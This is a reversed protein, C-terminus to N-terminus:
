HYLFCIGLLLVNLFNGRMFVSIIIFDSYSIEKFDYILLEKTSCSLRTSLIDSAIKKM